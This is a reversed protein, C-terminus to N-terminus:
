RMFGVKLSVELTEEELLKKMLITNVVAGVESGTKLMSVLSDPHLSGSGIKRVATIKKNGSVAVVIGSSSCCEEEPTPDVLYHNGIKMLTVVCPINETNLRKTDYPDDSLELEPQDGDMTAVKISPIQTAYLASKVALSVADYLNGGCELILIDVYLVWCQQGTLVSLESLNITDGSAYSRQLFRCIENALDEGGRGEFEPTANASCDVFFELRGEKPKDPFPSALEVKVGVLIDSNALRLRASGSANSVLGTELIIPRYDLRTRGDCRLDDQVGHHIFAKEAESLLIEAM